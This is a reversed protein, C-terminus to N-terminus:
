PRPTTERTRERRNLAARVRCALDAALLPRQVVAEVKPEVAVASETPVRGDLRPTIIDTLPLDIEVGREEIGASGGEATEASQSRVGTRDLASPIPWAAFAVRGERTRM